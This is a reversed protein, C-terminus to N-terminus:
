LNSTKKHKLNQNTELVQGLYKEENKTRIIISTEPNQYNM